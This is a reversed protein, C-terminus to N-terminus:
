HKPSIHSGSSIWTSSSKHASFDFYALMLTSGLRVSSGDGSGHVPNATVQLGVSGASGEKARIRGELVQGLKKEIPIIGFRVWKRKVM